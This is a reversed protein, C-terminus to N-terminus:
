KAEQDERRRPRRMTHVTAALEEDERDAELARSFIDLTNKFRLQLERRQTRLEQIRGEIRTAQELAQSVVADATSEADRVVLQAQRESNAVIEDAVKQARVLTEQLHRERSTSEKLRESLEGNKARLTEVEGRLRTLEEAVLSLFEEVETADLGRFQRNFRMKQIELPSLAM